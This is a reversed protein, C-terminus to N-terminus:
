VTGSEAAKIELDEEDWGRLFAEAEAQRSKYQLNRPVERGFGSARAGRGKAMADKVSEPMTQPSVAGGASRNAPELPPPATEASAQPHAVGPEAETEDAVDAPPAADAPDSDDNAFADLRAVISQVPKAARISAVEASPREMDYFRDDRRIVEDADASLPLSKSLRRIVTKKAMEEYHDKWPGSNGSRSIARIKNVDDITMVERAKSGDRYTAIAYVAIMEGANFLAPEHVIREDDGYIVQFVDNQRAVRAVLSQIEGSQYVKKRIGAVMPMYQVSKGFIVLAAERGDPLLGDQAALLCAELLTKRDAALLNPNRNIATIAIRQFREAPIHDPLARKFEPEMTNLQYALDKSAERLAVQNM